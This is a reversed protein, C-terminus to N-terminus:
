GSWRGAGEVVPPKKYFNLSALLSGFAVKKCNSVKPVELRKVTKRCCRSWRDAESVPGYGDDVIPAKEENTEKWAPGRRGTQNTAAYGRRRKAHHNPMKQLYILSFMNKRYVFSLIRITHNQIIGYLARRDSIIHTVYSIHYITRETKDRTCPLGKSM